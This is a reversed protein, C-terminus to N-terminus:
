CGPPGGGRRGDRGAGGLFPRDGAPNELLDPLAELEEDVDAEVVEGEGPLGPGEGAAFPLPYTEGGLYPRLEDADKVDEVFGAYSQVLPVVEAEEARQLFQAIEAVRHEDDLM